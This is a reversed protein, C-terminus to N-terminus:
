NREHELAGGCRKSWGSARSFPVGRVHGAPAPGSNFPADRHDDEFEEDHGNGGENIFDELGFQPGFGRVLRAFGDANLEIAGAFM